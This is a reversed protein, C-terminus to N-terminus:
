TKGEGCLAPLGGAVQLWSWGVAAMESVVAEQSVCDYVKQTWYSKVKACAPIRSGPIRPLRSDGSGCATDAGEEAAEARDQVKKAQAASGFLCMIHPHIGSELQDSGRKGLDVSNLHLVALVERPIAPSLM